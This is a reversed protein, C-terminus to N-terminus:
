IRQKHLFNKKENISSADYSLFSTILVYISIGCCRSWDYDNNHQWWALLPMSSILNDLVTTYLLFLCLPWMCCRYQTQLSALKIPLFAIQLSSYSVFYFNSMWAKRFGHFPMQVCMSDYVCFRKHVQCSSLRTFVNHKSYIGRQLM